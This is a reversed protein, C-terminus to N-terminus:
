LKGNVQLQLKTNHRWVQDNRRMNALWFRLKRIVIVGGCSIMLEISSAYCISFDPLGSIWHFSKLHKNTLNLIGCEVYFWDTIQLWMDSFRLSFHITVAFSVFIWNRKSSFQHFNATASKLRCEIVGIYCFPRRLCCRDGRYPPFPSLQYFNQGM